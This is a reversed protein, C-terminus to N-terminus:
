TVKTDRRYPRRTSRASAKPLPISDWNLTVRNAVCVTKVAARMTRLHSTSHTEKFTRVFRKMESEAWEPDKKAKEVFTTIGYGFVRDFIKFYM